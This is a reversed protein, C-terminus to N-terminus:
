RSQNSEFLMLHWDMVEDPPEGRDDEHDESQYDCLVFLMVFSTEVMLRDINMELQNRDRECM